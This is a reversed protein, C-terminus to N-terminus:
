QLKVGAGSSLKPAAGTSLSTNSSSPASGQLPHPYTYPAYTLTHNGAGAPQSASICYDFDGNGFGSTSHPTGSGTTCGVNTCTRGLFFTPNRNNVSTSNDCAAGTAGPNYCKDQTGNNWMYLPFSAQKTGAEIQTMTRGADRGTQSICPWGPASADTTGDWDHTGDCQLLPAGEDRDVRDEGVTFYNLTDYGTFTNNYILGTGGGQWRGVQYKPTVAWTFKNNYAEMWLANLNYGGDGGTWHAYFVGNAVTNHRFVVRGGTYLTDLVAAGDAHTASFTCDEIYIAVASGPTFAPVAALSGKLGTLSKNELADTLGTGTIIHTGKSLYFDCNDILGYIPGDIVVMGSPVNNPYNLIIHDVRFSGRWTGSQDGYFVIPQVSTSTGTLTFGTLRINPNNTSNYAIVGFGSEATIVTSAKGAGQITIYKDIIANVQGSLSCSGASISVTDGTTATSIATNLDGLIDTGGSCTVSCTGSPCAGFVSTSCALCFFIGALIWSRM